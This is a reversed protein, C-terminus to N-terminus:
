DGEEENGSVITDIEANTISETPSVGGGSSDVTPMLDENEDTEWDGDTETTNKPMLNGFVDVDWYGSSLLETQRELMDVVQDLYEQTNVSVLGRYSEAAAEAYNQAERLLEDMAAQADNIMGGLTTEANGLDDAFTDKTEDIIQQIVDDSLNSGMGAEDNLGAYILFGDFPEDATIVVNTGDMSIGTTVQESTGTTYDTSYVGFVANGNHPITLTYGDQANGEWHASDSKFYFQRASRLNLIDFIEEIQLNYKRAFDNLTDKGVGINVKQSPKYKIRTAM